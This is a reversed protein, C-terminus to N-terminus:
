LSPMNVATQDSGPLSAPCYHGNCTVMVQKVIFYDLGSGM